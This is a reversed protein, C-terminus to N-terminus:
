GSLDVMLLYGSMAQGYCNNKDLYEIYKSPKTPDYNEMYKNNAETQRNAIYSIGGRLGKETFLYM